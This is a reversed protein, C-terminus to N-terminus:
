VATRRAYLAKRIRAEEDIDPELGSRLGGEWRAAESRINRSIPDEGIEYSRLRPPLVPMGQQQGLPDGTRPDRPVDPVGHAAAPVNEQQPHREQLHEWVTPDRRVGRKKLRNRAAQYEEMDLKQDRHMQAAGLMTRVAEEERRALMAALAQQRSMGRYQMLLGVEVDADIGTAVNDGYRAM